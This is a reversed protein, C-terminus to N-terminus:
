TWYCETETGSLTLVALREDRRGRVEFTARVEEREGSLM